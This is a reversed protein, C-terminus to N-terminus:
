TYSAMPGLTGICLYTCCMELALEYMIIYPMCVITCVYHQRFHPLSIHLHKGRLQFVHYLFAACNNSFEGNNPSLMKCFGESTGCQHSINNVIRLNAYLPCCSLVHFEDEVVFTNIPSRVVNKCFREERATKNRRGVEIELPHCSIRFKILAIRHERRYVSSLYKDPELLSKSVNYYKLKASDGKSEYWKNLYHDRIRQKFQNVFTVPCGVDQSLWVIGFGHSYLM